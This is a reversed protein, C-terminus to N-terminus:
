SIHVTFTDWPLYNIAITQLPLCNWPLPLLLKSRKTKKDGDWLIPFSSGCTTVTIDRRFGSIANKPYHFYWSIFESSFVTFFPLLGDWFLERALFGPYIFLSSTLGNILTTTQSWFVSYLFRLSLPTSRKMETALYLGLSWSAFWSEPPLMEHALGVAEVSVGCPFNSRCGSCPQRKQIGLTMIFVYSKEILVSKKRLSM